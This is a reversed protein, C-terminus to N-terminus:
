KQRSRGASAIPDPKSEYSSMKRVSPHRSFCRASIIRSLIRRAEMCNRIVFNYPVTHLERPYKCHLGQTDEWPIAFIRILLSRTHTLFTQGAQLPFHWITYRLSGSGAKNTESLPRCMDWKSLQWNVKIQSALIVKFPQWGVSLGALGLKTKISFQYTYCKNYWSIRLPLVVLREGSGAPYFKIITLPHRIKVSTLRITSM